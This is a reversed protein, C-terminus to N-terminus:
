GFFFMSIVYYLFLVILAVPLITTLAAIILAMFDGKEFETKEKLESLLRTEEQWKRKKSKIESDIENQIAKNGSQLNNDLDNKPKM